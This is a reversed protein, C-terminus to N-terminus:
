RALKVTSSSSAAEALRRGVDAGHLLVTPHNTQPVWPPTDWRTGHSPPVAIWDSPGSRVKVGARDAKAYRGTAPLTLLTVSEDTVICPVQAVKELVVMAAMGVDRPVVLADFRTTWAILGAGPSEELEEVVREPTFM